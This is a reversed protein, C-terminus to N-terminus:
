EILNRNCAHYAAQRVIGLSYSTKLDKGFCRNYHKLLLLFVNSEKFSFPILGELTCRKELEWGPIDVELYLIFKFKTGSIDRTLQRYSTVDNCPGSSQHTCNVLWFGIKSSIVGDILQKHWPSMSQVVLKM